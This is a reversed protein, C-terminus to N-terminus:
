MSSAWAAWGRYRREAQYVFGEELSAKQEEPLAFRGQPVFSEFTLHSLAGLNSIKRLTSFRKAELKALKCRCPFLRAFDPHGVSVDRTVYGAGKCIPCVEAEKAETNM